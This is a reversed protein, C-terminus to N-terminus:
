RNKLRPCFGGQQAMNKVFLVAVLNGHNFVFEAFDGNIILQNAVAGRLDFVSVLPQM